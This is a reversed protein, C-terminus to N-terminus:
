TSGRHHVPGGAHSLNRASNVLAVHSFAQPFNGVLRGREVDYEESLLGVDNRVSVLREFMARAEERRGSMVYADVLWFSCALFAAEKGEVGDLNGGEHTPYRAVFGDKLLTREIAAITRQVRPDGIPLFGVTPIRLLTADLVKSGYAQTFCGLDPDYGRECVDRHIRDRLARWRDLPGDMGHQAVAKIARDLAVWAMVKSYTFHRRPGRVEWIGQDAEDWRGELSECIARQLAWSAPDPAIKMRRSQHFTDLVEGYVDLQLQTSAANGIRVPQSGEYGPLWEIAREDLRREGVVSYMIQLKSPDGAVARLLWDRWASAEERFGAGLLAYLTLTADRLWCFRYDWNRSGGLAEPLSTTAAAVIGGTPAYTLAKLTILSRLAVDRYPGGDEFRSAWARWWADTDDIASFPEATEPPAEHSRFWTLVFPVRDGARVTFDAVTTFGEGRSAVPSALVLGDPGAIAHLRGDLRRVWPVVSGYDFRVVLESHMDVSGSVGEVVRVVDPNKGRVPMCDVIRVVGEATAMETELVLTEGRYRRTTRQAGGRPAIRWRGHSADGLLAAFCAGSDFRPLCLWDISGDRGVLAITQTDGVVAYDEIRVLAHTLM